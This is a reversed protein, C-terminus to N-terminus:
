ESTVVEGDGPLGIRELVHNREWMSYANNMADVTAKDKVGHFINWGEDLIHPVVEHSIAPYHHVGKPYSRHPLGLYETIAVYFGDIANCGGWDPMAERAANDRLQKMIADPSNVIMELQYYPFEHPEMAYALKEAANMDEYAITADLLRELTSRESNIIKNVHAMAKSTPEDAAAILMLLVERSFFYPPEYNLYHTGIQNSWFMQKDSFLYEPLDKALCVADDDFMMYWDQEYEAAIKWHEIQRHITHSGKWGAAGAARFTVGPIDLSLSPDNGPTHHQGNEDLYDIEYAPSLVLVPQGHHQWTPMLDRIRQANGKYTHVVVLTNNM